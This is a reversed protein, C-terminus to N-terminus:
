KFLKEIAQMKEELLKVKNFDVESQLIKAQSRLEDAMEDILVYNEKENESLDKKVEILANTYWKDMSKDTAEILKNQWTLTETIMSITELFVSLSISLVKTSTAGIKALIHKLQNHTERSFTKGFLDGVKKLLHSAGNAIGSGGRGAFKKFYQSLGEYLVKNMHSKVSDKVLSQVEESFHLEVVSQVKMVEKNMRDEIQRNMEELNAQVYKSFEATERSVGNYLLHERVYATIEDERFKNSGSVKTRVMELVNREVRKLKDPMFKYIKEYQPKIIEEKIQEIANAREEFIQSLENIENRELKARMRMDNLYLVCEDYLNNVYIEFAEELMQNNKESHINECIYGWLENCKLLPYGDAEPPINPLLFLRPSHHLLDSIYRLIEQVKRDQETVDDPVRNIVLIVEVNENLLQYAYNLFAYDEALIGVRYSVMYIIVNSEPIFNKLVEEHEDMLSGYGPTDFVRVNGNGFVDSKRCVRLRELKDDPKRYLAQLQEKTLREMTANKNIAYYGEEEDSSLILETVAATSPGVHTFLLNEELLGNLLTTKGSSTEGLLVVFSDPNYMRERLFKAKNHIEENEVYPLTEFIKDLKEQSREFM